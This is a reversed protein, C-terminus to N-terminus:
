CAIRIGLLPREINADHWQGTGGDGTMGGDGTVGSGQAM